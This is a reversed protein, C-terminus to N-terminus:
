KAKATRALCTAAGGVKLDNVLDERKVGMVDITMQCAILRAGSKLSWLGLLKPIGAVNANAM